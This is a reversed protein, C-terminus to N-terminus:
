RDLLGTERLFGDLRKLTDEYLAADKFMYTHGAGQQVVLECRNGARLMEDHFLQAGKFPTTTDDTGHFVLTPPLGKRVQHAPSIAKWGAGAKANGYGEPSTDIVPSFLVLAQPVCSVALDEGKNEIGDFMATAAALHGGASAGNIVIKRPDVGLEAAHARVYRVASRADRICDLVTAPGGPKYLRYEVSIGVM